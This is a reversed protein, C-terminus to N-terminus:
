EARLARVPDIRSAQRAPVYGAAMTVIGLVSLAAVIAVPDRPTVGFLQGAIYRNAVLSALTGLAAGITVLLLTERVMMWVVSQQRAGLAIRIGIERTRRVVRYAMVGYLGICALSLALAAFFTALLALMRERVLSMEVHQEITAIGTVFGGPVTEIAIARISPALRTVDGPGRVAVVVNTIPDIAQELPVYAMREDPTRLDRYRADAVVGVIEFVDEVWQGPFNVKRGLPSEVGFFARAATENLIAVRLSGSRDRPTFWRGALLSIGTTEFYRDTVQNIHIGRDEEPGPAPGHIAIKVGRDRGSLPNMTAVAASSMGPVERVREIFGSWIAGLRAHDARYEAPTKSRVTRGPVTAEVQMTLVGDRDFGSPVRNLESLTRLFLAAGCLLLVSLTVQAVVLARGLRNHTGAGGAAAPKAADIRTARLAPALSFLLATAVSVSATFGLVRLDFHPELVVREGPGGLVAVLFSAGWRAFLLGAGAGLSADRSGDLLRGV